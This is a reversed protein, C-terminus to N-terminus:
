VRKKKNLDTRNKRYEYYTKGNKSVRKGASKASFLKDISYISSGTQHTGQKYKKKM